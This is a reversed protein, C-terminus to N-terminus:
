HCIAVLGHSIWSVKLLHAAAKLQRECQVLLNFGILSSRLRVTSRALIYDALKSLLDIDEARIPLLFTAVRTCASLGVLTSNVAQMLSGIKATLGIYSDEIWFRWFVYRRPDTSGRMREIDTSSASNTWTLHMVFVPSGRQICVFFWEQINVWFQANL